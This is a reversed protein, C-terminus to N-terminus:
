KKNQNKTKILKSLNNKIVEFGGNAALAIVAGNILILFADSINLKNTFYCAPYLVALSLVYSLVRTPLKKILPLGKTLQTLIMVVALAGPFTAMEFWEFFEMNIEGMRQTTQYNGRRHPPAASM